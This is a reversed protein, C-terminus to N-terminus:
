KEERPYDYIQTVPANEQEVYRRFVSYIKERNRSSIESPHRGFHENSIINESGEVLRGFIERDPRIVIRGSEYEPYKTEPYEAPVVKAFYYKTSRELISYVMGNKRFTQPLAKM